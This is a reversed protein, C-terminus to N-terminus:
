FSSLSYYLYWGKVVYSKGALNYEDVGIPGVYFDLSNGVNLKIVYQFLFSVVYQRLPKMQIADGYSKM